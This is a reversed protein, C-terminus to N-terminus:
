SNQMESLNEDNTEGSDDNDFVPTRVVGTILLKGQNVTTNKLIKFQMFLPM